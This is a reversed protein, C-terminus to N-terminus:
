KRKRETEEERKKKREETTKQAKKLVDEPSILTPISLKPPAQPAPKGLEMLHNLFQTIAVSQAETPHALMVFSSLAVTALENFAEDIALAGAYKKLRENLQIVRSPQFNSM